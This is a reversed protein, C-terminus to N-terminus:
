DWSVYEINLANEVTTLIIEPVKINLEIASKIITNIVEIFRPLQKDEESNFWSKNYCDYMLFPNNISTHSFVETICDPDCYYDVYVSLDKENFIEFINPCFTLLKNLATIGWEYDKFDYKNDTLVSIIECCIYLKKLYENELSFFELEAKIKQVDFFTLDFAEKFMNTKILDYIKIYSLNYESILNNYEFHKLCYQTTKNIYIKQEELSFAINLATHLLPKKLLNSIEIYKEKQLYDLIFKTAEKTKSHKIYKLIFVFRLSESVVNQNNKINSYNDNIIEDTIKLIQIINEEIIKKNDEFCFKFTLGLAWEFIKDRTNPDEYFVYTEYISKIQWEKLALLIYKYSVEAYMYGQHMIDDARDEMISQNVYSRENEARLSEQAAEIYKSNRKQYLILVKIYTGYGFTPNKLLIIDVLKEAITFEGMLYYKYSIEAQANINDSKEFEEIQSLLIFNNYAPIDSNSFYDKFSFEHLTKTELQTLDLRKFATFFEMLYKSKVEVIKLHNDINSKFYTGLPKEIYKKIDKPKFGAKSLILINNILAITSAKDLSSMISKVKFNDTINTISKKDKNDTIKLDEIFDLISGTERPRAM